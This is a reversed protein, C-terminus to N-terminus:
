GRLGYSRLAVTIRDVESDISRARSRACECFTALVSVLCDETCASRENPQPPVAGAIAAALGELREVAAALQRAADEIETKDKCMAQKAMGDM